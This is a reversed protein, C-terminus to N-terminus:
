QQGRARDLRDLVDHPVVESTKKEHIEPTPRNEEANRAAAAPDALTAAAAAGAAVAAVHVPDPRPADVAKWGALPHHGIVRIHNLMNKMVLLPGKIREFIKPAVRWAQFEFGVM